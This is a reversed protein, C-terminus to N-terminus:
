IDYNLFDGNNVKDLLITIVLEYRPSAEETLCSILRQVYYDSSLGYWALSLPNLSVM